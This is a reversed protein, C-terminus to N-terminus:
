KSVGEGRLAYKQKLYSGVDIKEMFEQYERRKEETDPSFEDLESAKVSLPSTILPCGSWEVTFTWFMTQVEETVRKKTLAATCTATVTEDAASEDVAESGLLWWDDRVKERFKEYSLGIRKAQEEDLKKNLRHLLNALSWNNPEQGRLGYSMVHQMIVSNDLVYREQCSQLIAFAMSAAFTAVCRVNKGSDRITQTLEAGDIVSGGPSAIVLTLDKETASLIAAQLKAVSEGNVEGRLILVKEDFTFKKETRPGWAVAGVALVLVVLRKFM